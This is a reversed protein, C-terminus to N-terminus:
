REIVKEKKVDSPGYNDGSSSLNLVIDNKDDFQLKNLISETKKKAEVENKDLSKTNEVESAGDSSSINLVLNNKEDFKIENLICEAKENLEFEEDQTDSNMESMEEDKL